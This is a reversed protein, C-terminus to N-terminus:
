IWGMKQTKYLHIWARRGQAFVVTSPIILGGNCFQDCPSFYFLSSAEGQDSGYLNDFREGRTNPWMILM